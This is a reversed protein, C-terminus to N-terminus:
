LERNVIAYGLSFPHGFRAQEEDTMREFFFQGYDQMAGSNRRLKEREWDPMTRAMDMAAGLAPSVEEEDDAVAGNGMTALEEAVVGQEWYFCFM